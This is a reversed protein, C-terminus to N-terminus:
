SGKKGHRRFAAIFQFFGYGILIRGFFDFFKPWFTLQEKPVHFDIKHTIDLFGFYDGFFRGTKAFGFPEHCHITVYYLSYTVASVILVFRLAVRWSESHNNSIKNLWFGFLNFREESFIKKYWPDTKQRYTLQLLRQQNDMAKAHYWSAEVVDGQNEYIKKFQNYISVKQEYRDKHGMSKNPDYIEIKDKPLETGTIFCDLLKSNLYEFRYGALNSGTIETKGLSSHSIRFVPSAGHFTETLQAVKEDYSKKQGELLKKKVQWRQKALNDQPVEGIYADIDRWAFPYQTPASVQRMLFYGQVQLEQLIAYHIHTDSLSLLSDKLLSTHTLQLYLLETQESVYLEGKTGVGWQLRSLLCHTIRIMLFQTNYLRLGFYNDTIAVHSLQANKFDLNGTQSNSAITIALPKSNNGIHIDDSQSSHWIRINDLQSNHWIRIDSSQSNDGISISGSQSNYSIGINGSQSDYSIDISSSRSDYKINIDGSQSGHKISIDGSQSRGEIRIDGSRSSGGVHIDGSQSNDWIGIYGSRSNGEIRIYGSQSSSNIRIYGSRSNDEVNIYGLRSNDEVRIYGSQSNNFYLGDIKAQQLSISSVISKYFVFAVAYDIQKENILQIAEGGILKSELLIVYEQNDRFDLYYNELLKKNKIKNGMMRYLGNGETFPEGKVAKMFEDIHVEYKTEPPTYPTEPM